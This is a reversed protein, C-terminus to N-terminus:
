ERPQNGKRLSIGATALLDRVTARREEDVLPSDDVREARQAYVAVVRLRRATHHREELEERIPALLEAPRPFFKLSKRAHKLAVQVLDLPVDEFAELYFDAIDDWNEPAGFLALTREVEVAVVRPDAPALATEVVQIAHKM